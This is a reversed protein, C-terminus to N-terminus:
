FIYDFYIYELVCWYVFMRSLISWYGITRLLVIDIVKTYFIFMKVNKESLIAAFYIGFRVFNCWKDFFNQPLMGRVAFGGLLRRVEGRAAHRKAGHMYGWKRFNSQVKGGFHFGLYAGASICRFHLLSCLDVTLMKEPSCAETVESFPALVNKKPPAKKTKLPAKNPSAGKWRFNGRAGMGWASGDAIM